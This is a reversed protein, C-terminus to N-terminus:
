GKEDYKGWVFSGAKSGCPRCHWGTLKRPRRHRSFERGCSPCSAKWVGKPMKIHAGYCREPRAGIEICKAKWVAGHGHGPGVLAHAIEHLITDRIESEQNSEVYHCSLEIRGPATGHPYKCVGARRVNTNMRFQWGYLKHQTMLAVALSKAWASKATPEVPSKAM